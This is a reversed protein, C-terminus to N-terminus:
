VIRCLRNGSFETIFTKIVIFEISFHAHTQIITPAVAYIDVDMTITIYKDDCSYTYNQPENESIIVCDYVGAFVPRLFFM